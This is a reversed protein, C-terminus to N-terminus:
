FQFIYSKGIGEVFCIIPIEPNKSSKLQLYQQILETQVPDGGGSNIKLFVAKLRKIDFAKDLLYKFNDINILRFDRFDSHAQSPEITGDLEVISPFFKM